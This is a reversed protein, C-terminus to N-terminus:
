ELSGFTRVSVLEEVDWLSVLSDAGGTAFYRNKPDFRICYCNATHAQLTHLLKM